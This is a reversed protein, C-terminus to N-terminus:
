RTGKEPAPALSVRRLNNATTWVFNDNDTVCLVDGDNTIFVIEGDFSHHLKCEDGKVRINLSM